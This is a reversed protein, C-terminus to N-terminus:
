EYLGPYLYVNPYILTLNDNNCINSYIVSIGHEDLFGTDICNNNLFIEVDTHLDYGYIPHMSSSVIYLGTVASLPSAKFPDVAAKNYLHNEDRYSDINDNIWTFTKYENEDIMQYYPINLHSPVATIALLFVIVITTILGVNKSIIKYKKPFMKEKVKIVLRRLESMGYGAILTIMLFLYMFSREYLIPLGYGIRDYLGIISIFVIASLSITQQIVKGKSFAFYAGIISLIWTTIGLHEFSPWIKPLDYVNLFQKGGLFADVVQQLEIDWRTMLLFILLLPVFSLVTIIISLKYEKDIILLLSYLFIIIVAALASPPHILFVSWIFFPILLAAITKKQQGLCIIYIIFLLGMTVAVYFSPGMMRCTTPIFTVLLAAELGFKRASREGINFAIISTFVAIISPM